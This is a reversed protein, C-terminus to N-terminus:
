KETQNEFLRKIEDVTTADYPGKDARYSVFRPFRLGYGLAHVTKGATHVPSVTIEDALVVVVMSPTVWVDPALEKSCYVNSPPGDHQLKDCKKKLECWGDDSLGTGVKAVTEFRDHKKDYVGVLFAGIGFLARKGSGAYYGLVVCDLSDEIEKQAHYKLKIWNFNRKGPQYHAQTRKVVVGELGQDLQHLFYRQLEQASDIKQEEIVQLPEHDYTRVYELVKKRRIAHPENLYSKGDCYLLDFIYLRLPFDAVAKEIGHKRKRKVTEQFPLFTNTYPDYTIAEGEVILSDVPLRKFSEALDPFMHSMDTLHRSYFAIRIGEPERQMHIQLRFGDLKPQAVCSGIKEFIEQASPLREAAAPRIPIGVKISITDLGEMGHEKLISAIYGLDVCVNYAHEIQKHLSKDRVLMWSLADILTMDSFGLRLTGLIIRIVYKAEIASIKELLTCIAESKQEVSGAGEISEIACLAHYIQKVSIDHSSNTYHNAMVTGLDGTDKLLAQAEKFTVNLVHAVISVLTKEAINFQMGQYAPRLTGLAMTCVIYTDSVSLKGILEALLQTIVTRSRENEIMEFYHAIANFKM